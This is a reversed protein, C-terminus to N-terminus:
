YFSISKFPCVVNRSVELRAVQSKLKACEECKEAWAKNLKYLQDMLEDNKVEHLTKLEVVENTAQM